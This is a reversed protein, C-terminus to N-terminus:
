ASLSEDPISNLKTLLASFPPRKEPNEEWCANMIEAFQSPIQQNISPRVGRTILETLSVNSDREEITYPVFHTIMHYLIMGFSFVDASTTYEKGLLVEPATWRKAPPVKYEGSEQLVTTLGPDCIKVSWYENIVINNTTLNQHCIPPQQGHLFTMGRAAELAVSKIRMWNLKSPNIRIIDSLCGLEGFETVLCLPDASAGVMHIINPHKLSRMMSAYKCVSDKTYYAGAIDTNFIKVAVNQGKYTASHVVGNRGRGVAESIELLNYSVEWEYSYFDELIEQDSQSISDRDSYIIPRPAHKPKYKYVAFVIIIIICLLCVVTFALTVTVAISIPNVGEPPTYVVSDYSSEAITQAWSPLIDFVIGQWGEVPALAYFEKKMVSWGAIDNVPISNVNSFHGGIYLDESDASLALKSVFPHVGSVGSGFPVWSGSDLRSIGNMVVGNINDIQGGIYIAGNATSSTDTVASITLIIQSDCEEFAENCTPVVALWTPPFSNNASLYAFNSYQKEDVLLTFRGGVYLGENGLELDYVTGDMHNQVPLWSGTTIELAILSSVNFTYGAMSLEMQFKGGVYLFQSDSSLNIDYVIPKSMNFSPDGLQIGDGVATWGVTPTYKALSLYDTSNQLFKFIGGIYVEEGVVALSHILGHVGGGFADWGFSSYDLMVINNLNTINGVKRFGGGIVLSSNTYYEMTLVVGDLLLENYLFNSWINKEPDLSYEVILNEVL